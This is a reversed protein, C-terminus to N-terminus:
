GAGFLLAAFTGDDKAEYLRAEVPAGRATGALSGPLTAADNVVLLDGPRLFRPLAGVTADDFSGKRADVVLLRESVVDDRPFTAPSM